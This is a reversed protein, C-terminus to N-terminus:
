FPKLSHCFILPIRSKPTKTSSLTHLVDRLALALKKAAITREGAGSCSREALCDVVFNFLELNFSLASKGEEPLACKHPFFRQQQAQILTALPTKKPPAQLRELTGCSNFSFRVHHNGALSSAACTSQLKCAVRDTGSTAKTPCHSAQCPLCGIDVMQSEDLVGNEHLEALTSQLLDGFNDDSSAQMQVWGSQRTFRHLGHLQVFVITGNDNDNEKGSVFFSSQLLQLTAQVQDIPRL